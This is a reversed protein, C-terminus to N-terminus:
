IQGQVLQAKVDVYQKPSAHLALTPNGSLVIAGTMTGGSRQLMVADNEALQDQQQWTLLGKYIFTSTLDAYAM